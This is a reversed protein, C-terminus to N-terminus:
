ERSLPVCLTIETGEGPATRVKLEGQLLIAREQIGMLGFGGQSSRPQAADFGCGDDLITLRLKEEGFNLMVTINKARAHRTANTIAEQGARLLNNETVPALRREQGTVRVVPEIGTGNVMQTLIGRLAASLTNTELVQARMNWISNRAEALSGRVLQQASVLHQRMAEPAGNGHIQALELQVSMATLGQALTDHIERALRNRESLIAAFEAEAMARRRVQEAMHRRAIFMVLACACLSIGAITCLSFILHRTTWWPPNKLTALDEPSRLLIQFSQPHWVGMVPRSDDYLVTCIGTVRVWSGPQWAEPVPGPSPQNLISKFITGSKDLTVALGDLTPQVEILKAELTVLDDEHDYAEAADQLNLGMPPISSDSLKRYIGHELLPTTSGYSPFGLVDIEDGPVLSDPQSTQIRLGSSDDRIWVISDPQTCTVVGRVHVRHGFPITPSFQLLSAAPRIPSAYPNAPPFKQVQVSLGRPVQLVPSLVQRKKNFQYFCIAPVRVEADVQVLPDQPPSLRVLLTGGDAALVISWVDSNTGEPQLQRVVGTIEIFQADLSGTIIQQYTVPRASFGPAWGIKQAGTTIVIPAFEGPGTVGNIELLDNRHFPAFLNTEAFLYLGLGGEELVVAHERPQSEDIVVGQLHVPIQRAAEDASLERIQQANTLVDTLPNPQDALAEHGAIFCALLLVNLSISPSHM